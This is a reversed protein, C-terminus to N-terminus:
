YVEDPHTTRFDELKRYLTKRDLGLLEAAQSKNGGTHELTELIYERELEDLTLRRTRARSLMAASAAGTRIREPLDNATLTTGCRFAVAREVANELERVNGPFPYATLLALADPTIDLSPAPPTNSQGEEKGTTAASGLAAKRIFHEVLLPIDFPRDRLPPVHLHIVNLRWYLDERFRNQRVETELDRNTAAVLRINVTREREAGIPRVASEQLARLLKPQMSLPLEGIEDLFLTGDNAAEFLGTRSARAGTFAQGTHGFLEAEILDAPIAACNVPVFEGKRSSADHISRAVLEKGTGSEGTVLVTFRSRAARDILDFLERMPRSAGIIRSPTAPLTRRLRAQERQPATRELADSITRLLDITQFPKTLYQFAGQRVMQIAQEISGFATIVIVPVEPRARATRRLLEDGKLNPMRVDTILLDFHESTHEFHALARRGDAAVITDYGAEELVEQLLDRMDADDEAVLIRPRNTM